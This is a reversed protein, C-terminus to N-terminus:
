QEVMEGSGPVLFLLHIRGAVDVRADKVSLFDTEAPLVLWGSFGEGTSIQPAPFAEELQDLSIGARRPLDMPDLSGIREGSKMELRLRDARPPFRFSFASRGSALVTFRALRVPDRFYSAVVDAQPDRGPLVEEVHISLVPVITVVSWGVPTRRARLETGRGASAVSGLAHRLWGGSRLHVWGGRRGDAAKVQGRAVRGIEPHLSSPGARLPLDEGVRFPLVPDLREKSEPRIERPGAAVSLYPSPASPRRGPRPSRGTLAPDGVLLVFGDDTSELTWGLDERALVILFRESVGEPLYPRASEPIRQISIVEPSGVRFRAPTDGAGLGRLDVRLRTPGTREVDPRLSWAAHFRLRTLGPGSSWAIKRLWSADPPAPVQGHAAQSAFLTLLVILAAGLGAAAAVRGASAAALRAPALPGLAFRM